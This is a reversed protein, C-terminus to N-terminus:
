REKRPTVSNDLVQDIWDNVTSVRMGAMVSGYKPVNTNRPEGKNPLLVSSIAVLKWSGGHEVFWGGGSDGVSQGIELDVPTPEGIQNWTPDNPHDFDCVLVRESVDLDKFKGGAADIVNYGRRREQIPRGDHLSMGTLGDGICCYGVKTMMRGVEDNGRYRIAPRVNEVARDLQVLALDAGAGVLALANARDGRNRVEFRPHLVRQIARYEAGGFHYRQEELPEATAVHAATLAWQHDILLASACPRWRQDSRGVSTVRGVSQFNGTNEADAYKEAPRDHRIIGSWCIPLRQTVIVAIALCVAALHKMDENEM